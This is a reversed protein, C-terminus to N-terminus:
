SGLNVGECSTNVCGRGKMYCAHIWRVWLKDTKASLNWLLKACMELNWHCLSIVKLGGSNKPDRIKEWSIPAKKM